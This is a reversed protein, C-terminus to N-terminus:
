MLRGLLLTLMTVVQGLTSQLGNMSRELSTVRADLNSSPQTVPAPSGVSLQSRLQANETRLAQLEAKIADIEARDFGVIRAALFADSFVKTNLNAIEQTSLSNVNARSYEARAEFSASAFVPAFLLAALVAPAIYKM